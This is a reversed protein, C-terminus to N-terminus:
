VQARLNDRIRSRCRPNERRLRVTEMQMVQWRTKYTQVLRFVTAYWHWERLQRKSLSKELRQKKERKGRDERVIGFVTPSASTMRTPRRASPKNTSPFSRPPSLYLTVHCGETPRNEPWSLTSHSSFQRNGGAFPVSQPSPVSCVQAQSTIM